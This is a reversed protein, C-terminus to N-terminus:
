ERSSHLNRFRTYANMINNNIPNESVDYDFVKKNQPIQTKPHHSQQEHYRKVHAKNRLIMKGKPSKLTVSSTDNKTVIYPKEQYYFKSMKSFDKVLVKEGEIFDHNKTRRKQDAYNKIRHKYHKHHQETESQKSQQQISPIGHNPTHQFMMQAPPLGTAPNPTTRYMLLFNDLETKWNKQELMATQLLKCITRNFREVEDNGEPWYAHAPKHEINHSQLYKTFTGATFQPGNDSRLKKPYGFTTFIKQLHKIINESTISRM